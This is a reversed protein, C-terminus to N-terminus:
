INPGIESWITRAVMSCEKIRLRQPPCTERLLAGFRLMSDFNAVAERYASMGENGPGPLVIIQAPVDDRHTPLVVGWAFRDGILRMIGIAFMVVEPPVTFASRPLLVSVTPSPNAEAGQLLVDRIWQTECAALYEYGFATFFTLYAASLLCLEIQSAKAAAPVDFVCTAENADGVAHALAQLNTQKRIVRFGIRGDRAYLEAGVGAGNVTGRVDVSNAVAGDFARFRRRYKSMPVDFARNMRDNCGVCLLTKVVGGCSEPYAHAVNVELTEAEVASPGFERRCIPCIFLGAKGPPFFFQQNTSYTEFYQRRQAAQGSM